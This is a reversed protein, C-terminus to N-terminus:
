RRRCVTSVATTSSFSCASCAHRIRTSPSTRRACSISRAGAITVVTPPGSIFWAGNEKLAGFRTARGDLTRLDVDEIARPPDILDGKAKPLPRWGGFYLSMALVVPAAFLLALLVLQWRKRDPSKKKTM